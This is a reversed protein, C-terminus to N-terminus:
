KNFDIEQNQNDTELMENELLERSGIYRYDNDYFYIRM